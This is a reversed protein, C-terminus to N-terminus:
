LHISLLSSTVFVFTGILFYKTQGSRSYLEHYRACSALSNLIVVSLRKILTSFLLYLLQILFKLVYHKNSEQLNRKDDIICLLFPPYYIQWKGWEDQVIILFYSSYCIIINLHWVSACMGLIDLINLLSHRVGETNASLVNILRCVFSVWSHCQYANHVSISIAM